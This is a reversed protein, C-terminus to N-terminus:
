SSSAFFIGSDKDAEPDVILVIGSLRGVDQLFYDERLLNLFAELIADYSRIRLKQTIAERIATLDARIEPQESVAELYTKVVAFVITEQKVDGRELVTRYNVIEELPYPVKVTELFSRRFEPLSLWSALVAADVQAGKLGVRAALLRTYRACLRLEALRKPEDKLAWSAFFAAMSIMSESMLEYSFAQQLLLPSFNFYYFVEIPDNATKIEELWKGGQKFINGNVLLADFTKKKLHTLVDKVSSSWAVEKTGELELLTRFARARNLEPELLLIRKYPYGISKEKEQEVVGEDIEEPLIRFDEPVELEGEPKSQKNGGKYFTQIAALIEARSAVTFTVRHPAFLGDELIMTKEIDEPDSLALTLVGDKEDFDVPFILWKDALDVPILQKCKLPPTKDLLAIYPLEYLESLAHGLEQHDILDLFVLAEELSIKTTLAYDEARAMDPRRIRGTEMLYKKLRVEDAM